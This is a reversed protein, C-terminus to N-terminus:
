ASVFRRWIGDKTCIFLATAANALAVGTAGATGNITDTGSAFIQASNAGGSNTVAVRLGCKAPPLTVSDNASAVTTLENFAASLVLSTTQTGAATATISGLFSTLLSNIRNIHGGSILQKSESYIAFPLKPLTLM